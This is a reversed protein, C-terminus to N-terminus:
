RLRRDRRGTRDHPRRLGGQMWGDGAADHAAIYGWTMGRANATGSHYIAGLDSWAMSNGAAYLGAIPGDANLVRAHDDTQLGVQTIGLGITNLQVAFFPPKEVPGLNPNPRHHPDGFQTHSWASEGRKFDPDRGEAAFQNFRAVSAELAAADVGMVGALGALTDATEFPPPLPEGPATKGIPYKERYQSDFVAWVGTLEDKGRSRLAENFQRAHGGSEDWFRKGHRDVNMAHPWGSYFPQWRANVPQWGGGPRREPTEPYGYAPTRRVAGLRVGLPETLRIHDGTVSEPSRSGFSRYGDFRWVLDPNWDYGGVAILTGGRARITRTEGDVTAVVGAVRDGEVLLEEVEVGVLVPINRRMLAQALYSSLASGQYRLDAESRATAREWDWQQRYAHGGMEFYMEHNSFWSTPSFRALSRWPEDLTRGDFPELEVFRGLRVSGPAEPWLNDPLRLTCFAVGADRGLYELARPVTECFRRLMAPDMDRSFSQLYTHGQEWSDEIGAERQLHNGPVWFQGSSYAAVGGIQASKELLIPRLGADHAVLSATLGGIGGGVCVLDYDLDEKTM